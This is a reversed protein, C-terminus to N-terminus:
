GIRGFHYGRKELLGFYCTKHECKPCLGRQDLECDDDRCIACNMYKSSVCKKMGEEPKSSTETAEYEHPNMLFSQLNGNYFDHILQDWVKKNDGNAIGTDRADLLAQTTKISKM